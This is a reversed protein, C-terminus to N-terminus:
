VYYKLAEHEESIVAGNVEYYQYMLECAKLIAPGTPTGGGSSILELKQRLISIDSTFGCIISCMGADEGPYTIVAISSSGKRGQLSELLEVVSRRAISLKERMSGSTDLVVICKLNINEGYKEIFDVIKLRSKPELNEIEEGMMAKLQRSVIQEITRQATRHTLNQITRSLDEIHSYECLGGGAKAIEEVEEIDKEDSSGRFNIVGITSLTIGASYARKAADIPSIGVNSRGDTVVIIQKIEGSEILIAM